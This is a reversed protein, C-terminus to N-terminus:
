AGLRALLPEIAGVFANAVPENTFRTAVNRRGTAALRARLTDDLAIENAVRAVLQYDEDDIPAAVVAQGPGATEACAGSDGTIIALGTAQAEVLPVCFGEHLSLNVYAGAAALLHDLEIDSVHRRFDVADELGHAAVADWIAVNYSGMSEDVDGVVTLRADPAYHRRYMAFCEVLERHGKNPAWRGIFLWHHADRPGDPRALLADVRTFPAVVHAQAPAVGEELVDARNFASDATWLAEPFARALEGTQARGLTCREVYHPAYGLFFDPPTVNHYKFALPGAFHELADGGVPWHFSHHYVLADLSEFARPSDMVIRRLGDLGSTGFHEGVLVPEFGMAELAHYQGLLDNGIADGTRIACHALGIAKM